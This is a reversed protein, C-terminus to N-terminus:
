PSRAVPSPSRGSRRKGKLVAILSWLARSTRSSRQGLEAGIARAFYNERRAVSIEYELEKASSYAISLHRVYAKESRRASGEVINAAVSVAARRLQSALGFREDEPFGRTARYIDMVLDDALQFAELKSHDRM